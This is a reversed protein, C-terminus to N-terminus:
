SSAICRAGMLEMIFYARVGDHGYGFLQPAFAYQFERLFLKDAEYAWVDVNKLTKVAYTRAPM